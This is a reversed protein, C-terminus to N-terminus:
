EVEDDRICQRLRERVRAMRVQRRKGAMSGGCRRREWRYESNGKEGKVAGLNNIKIVPVSFNNRTFTRFSDM